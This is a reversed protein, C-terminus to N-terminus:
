AARLRGRGGAPVIERGRRLPCVGRGVRQRQARGPAGVIEYKSPPIFGGARYAAGAAARERESVAFAASTQVPPGTYNM